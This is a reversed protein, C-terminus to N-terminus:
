LSIMKILKKASGIMALWILLNINKRMKAIPSILFHADSPNWKHRYYKKKFSTMLADYWVRNQSISNM